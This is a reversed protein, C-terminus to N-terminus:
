QQRVLVAGWHFGAGFAAFCVHEGSEIAAAEHWESAAILMSASSTNGYKRINSYFRGAPVELARAVRDILNQNAQHMLFSSVSGPELRNRGLLEQIVGPIKRAAQMIVSLGNMQIPGTWGLRIDNRWTGDSHLVSDVIELGPDSSSVLCAGAGDGFLIAINRDLPEASAPVSMKEAAVVLTNSGKSALALGFLAGASAMPLDIAPVGALGLRLAIEAAPGPFRNEASGSSVIVLDINAERGALCHRAAAVGMDAVSEEAGAVRREEIGCSQLIWGADCGLKAALEDNDLRREPVYRGFSVISAM